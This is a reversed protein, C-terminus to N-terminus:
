SQENSRYGLTQLTEKATLAFLPAPPFVGDLPNVQDSVGIERRRM